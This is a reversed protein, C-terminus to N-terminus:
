SRQQESLGRLDWISINCSITETWSSLISGGFKRVHPMNFVVRNTAPFDLDDFFIKTPWAREFGM